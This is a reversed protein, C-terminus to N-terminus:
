NPRRCVSSDSYVFPRPMMFFPGDNGIQSGERLKHLRGLFGREKDVWNMVSLCDHYLIAVPQLVIAFSHEAGYGSDNNSQVPQKHMLSYDCSSLVALLM